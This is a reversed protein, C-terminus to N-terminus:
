LFRQVLIERKYIISLINRNGFEKFIYINKNFIFFLILTADITQFIVLYQRHLNSLGM